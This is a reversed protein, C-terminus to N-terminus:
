NFILGSPKSDLAKTAIEYLAKSKSKQCSVLFERTESLPWLYAVAAIYTRPSIIQGEDNIIESVSFMIKQMEAIPPIIRQHFIAACAGAVLSANNRGLSEFFFDTRQGDDELMSIAFGLLVYVKTADFNNFILGRLYPVASKHGMIAITRILQCQSKWALPKAIERILAAELEAGFGTIRKKEIQLAAKSVKTSSNSNLDEALDM